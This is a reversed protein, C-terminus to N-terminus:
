QGAQELALKFDAAAQEDWLDGSFKDYLPDIAESFRALEADDLEIIEVGADRFTQFIREESNIRTDNVANGAELVCEQLIQQDEPSLKQFSNENIVVFQTYYLHYTLTLYKAEEYFKYGEIYDIPIEVADIVGQQLATYVEDLSNAVAMVGLNGWAADWIAFGTPTRLKLGKLDDMSRVPKKSILQRPAQIWQDLIRLNLEKLMPENIYKQGFTEGTLVNYMVDESSFAYLMLPLNHASFWSAFNGSGTSVMDISGDMMMDRCALESGLINNGFVEIKVRGNTREEVLKALTEAGVDSPQGTATNHAMRLVIPDAAPAAAPAESKTETKTETKTESSAGSSQAPAASQSGCAVLTFVM